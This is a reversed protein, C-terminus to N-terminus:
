NMTVGNKEVLFEIKWASYALLILKMIISLVAGLMTPISESQLRSDPRFAYSHGFSDQGKLFKEM